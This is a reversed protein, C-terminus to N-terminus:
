DFLHRIRSVLRNVESQQLVNVLVKMAKWTVKM